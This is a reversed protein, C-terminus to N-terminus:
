GLFTPLVGFQAAIQALINLLGFLIVFYIMFNGGYVTYHSETFRQRTAKALLAPVIAAWITAALGAYGIAVVFGYPFQ